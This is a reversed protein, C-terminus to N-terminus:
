RPGPARGFLREFLNEHAGAGRESPAGGGEREHERREPDSAANMPTEAAVAREGAGSARRAPREVRVDLAGPICLPVGMRAATLIISATVEAPTPPGSPLGSGPRATEDHDHHDNNKLREDHRM